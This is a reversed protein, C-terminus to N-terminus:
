SRRPWTPFLQYRAQRPPVSSWGFPFGSHAGFSTKYRNRLHKEASPISRGDPGPYVVFTGTLIATGGNARGADRFSACPKWGVVEERRAEVACGTGAAPLVMARSVDKVRRYRAVYVRGTGNGRSVRSRCPVSNKLHKNVIMVWRSGDEEHTFDGIVFADGATLGKVLSDPGIGQNQEPVGGAHYVRDSRLKLLTPALHQIQRNM